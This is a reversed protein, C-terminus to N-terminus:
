NNVRYADVGSHQFPQGSTNSPVFVSLWAITGAPFRGLPRPVTLEQGNAVGVSEVYAGCVETSGPTRFCLAVSVDTTPSRDTVWVTVSTIGNAHVLTPGVDISCSWHAGTWSLNIMGPGSAAVKSGDQGLCAGAASRTYVEAASATQAFGFTALLLLHTRM